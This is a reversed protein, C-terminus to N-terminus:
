PVVQAQLELGDRGPNAVLEVRTLRAGWADVLLPDDLM